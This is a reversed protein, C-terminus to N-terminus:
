EDSSKELRGLVGLVFRESYGALFCWVILKGASAIDIPRLDLWHQVTLPQLGSAPTAARFDPFLNTALLGGGEVGSLIQSMFLFYAVVALVGGYLFPMLTTGWSTATSQILAANGSRVQRLFSVSGGFIGAVFSLWFFGLDLRLSVYVLGCTLAIMTLQLYLIRKVLLAALPHLPSKTQTGAISHEGLPNARTKEKATM